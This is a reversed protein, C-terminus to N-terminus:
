RQDDAQGEKVAKLVADMTDKDCLARGGMKGGKLAAPNVVAWRGTPWYTTGDESPLAFAHNGNFRSGDVTVEILLFGKSFKEKCKDCPELNMVVNKPAEVDSRDGKKEHIRGFLAIGKPEGCWFCTDLSPNVGHKPSLTIEKSM